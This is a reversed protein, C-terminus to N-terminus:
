RIFVPNTIAYDGGEGRVTLVVWDGAQLAARITREATLGDITESQLEQGNKVLSYATLARNSELRIHIELEGAAVSNGPTAGGVELYALPNNTLFSNGQTIAKM